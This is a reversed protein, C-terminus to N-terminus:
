SAWAQEFLQLPTLNTSPEFVTRSGTEDDDLSITVQGGGRKQACSRDWENALFHSMATLLFTRLKGKKRNAAGLYNKGLLVLFFQQTLDKADDERYGLRRVYAHLPPWYTQCLRSLAEHAQAGDAQQATLVVTWSTAVFGAPHPTTSTSSSTTRTRSTSMASPSHNLEV